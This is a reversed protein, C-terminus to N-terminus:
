EIEVKCHRGNALALLKDISGGDEPQKYSQSVGISRITAEGMIECIEYVNGAKFYDGLGAGILLVHGENTSSKAYVRGKMRSM